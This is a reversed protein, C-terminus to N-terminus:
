GAFVGDLGVIGEPLDGLLFHAVAVAPFVKVFHVLVADLIGVLKFLARDDNDGDFLVIVRGM